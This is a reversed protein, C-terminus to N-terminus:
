VLTVHALAGGLQWVLTVHALAGGLQGVLTVHALAGGLQGVLTVHALAGGLHWVWISFNGDEPGVIVGGESGIPCNLSKPIFAGAFECAQLCLLVRHQGQKAQFLGRSLGRWPYALPRSGFM